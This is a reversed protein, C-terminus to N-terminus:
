KDNGVGILNLLYKVAEKIGEVLGTNEEQCKDLEERLALTTAKCENLELQLAKAKERWANRSEGLEVARDYWQEASKGKYVGNRLYWKLVDIRGGTRLHRVEHHTHIGTAQGSAGMVGLKQGEKVSQNAKVAISAFHGFYYWKGTEKGKMFLYKGEVSGVGVEKIQGQEPANIRVNPTGAINPAIDVGEKHNGVQYSTIRFNDVPFRM